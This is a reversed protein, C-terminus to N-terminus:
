PEPRMCKWTMHSENPTGSTARMGAESARMEDKVACNGPKTVSEATLFMIQPRLSQCVM